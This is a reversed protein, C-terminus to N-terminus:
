FNLADIKKLIKGDLESFPKTLMKMSNKSTDFFGSDNGETMEKIEKALEEDFSLECHNYISQVHEIANKCLNEHTVHFIRSDTQAWKELARKMIETTIYRNLLRNELFSPRNLYKKVQDPLSSIENDIFENGTKQKAKFKTKINNYEPLFYPRKKSNGFTKIRSDIVRKSDRTIVVIKAEPFYDLIKNYIGLNHVDKIVLYEPNKDNRKLTDTLFKERFPTDSFTFEKILKSYEEIKVNDADFSSFWPVGEFNQSFLTLNEKKLKPFPEDLYRMSSKSLCVLDGLWTTGSRAIGLVFIRKM